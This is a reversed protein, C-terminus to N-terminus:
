HGQNFAMPIPENPSIQNAKVWFASLLTPCAVISFLSGNKINVGQPLM